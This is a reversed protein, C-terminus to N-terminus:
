PEHPLAAVLPWAPRVAVTREVAREVARRPLRLPTGWVSPVLLEVYGGSPDRRGHADVFCRQEVARRATAEVAGDDVVLFQSDAIKWPPEHVAAAVALCALGIGPLWALGRGRLREGVGDAWVVVLLTAVLNQGLFYRDPFTTRYGDLYGALEGRRLILVASVLAVTLIGAVVVPRQRPLGLRWAVAALIAAVALTVPTSLRQYWPWVLPYLLGRALGIEVAADFGVTPSATGGVPRSSPLGNVALCVIALLCLSQFSGDRFLDRVPERGAIWRRVSPWAAAPLMAICIPNTATCILLVADVALGGRFSRVETNRYWLMVFAIFLFAYGVNVSRGLIEFGSWAPQSHIGLPMLCALLWAAFRGAPSLQRRLLLVPLSAVAAFFVYSVVALCRPTRLVDGCWEAISVGLWVLVTNGVIRYDGRAHLATDWFGRTVLSSTWEWDEAFLLPEMYAAPARAFFILTAAATAALFQFWPSGAVGRLDDRLSPLSTPFSAATM